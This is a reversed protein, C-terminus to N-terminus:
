ALYDSVSGYIMLLVGFLQVEIEGTTIEDIKSEIKRLELKTEQFRASMEKSLRANKDKLEKVEQEIYKGMADIQEQLFAIKEDISKPNRGTVLNAKRTATTGVVSSKVDIIKARKILPFERL